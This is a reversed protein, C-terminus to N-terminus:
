SDLGLNEWYNYSYFFMLLKHRSSLSSHLASLFQSYFLTENGTEIPTLELVEKYIILYFVTRWFDYGIIRLLKYTFRTTARCSNTSTVYIFQSILNKYYGSVFQTFILSVEEGSEFRIWHSNKILSSLCAFYTLLIDVYASDKYFVLLSYLWFM